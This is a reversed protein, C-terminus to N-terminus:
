LVLFCMSTGCLVPHTCLASSASLSCAVCLHTHPCHQPHKTGVQGQHLIWLTLVLLPATNLHWILHFCRDSVHMVNSRQKTDCLPCHHLHPHPLPAWSFPVSSPVLRQQQSSSAQRLHCVRLWAWPSFSSQRRPPLPTNM